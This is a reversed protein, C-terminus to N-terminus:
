ELNPFYTHHQEPLQKRDLLALTTIKSCNKRTVDSTFHETVCELQEYEVLLLIPSFLSTKTDLLFQEVYDDHVDVLILQRLHSYEIVSVNGNDHASDLEEKLQQAKFNYVTLVKLYPFAQSIRIFFAHEFPREDFLSVYRVNPFIGGPFHNTINEYHTLTYPCSYIHCQGYDNDPFYDVCSIVQDAPFSTFTRHIDENSPFERLYWFYIMSRINFTLRKLLPMYDIITKQMKKGDLFSEKCDIWFYLAFKELNMMRQLHPM